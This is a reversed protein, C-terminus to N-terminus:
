VTPVISAGLALEAFFRTAAVARGLVASRREATLSRPDPDPAIAHVNAGIAGIRRALGVIRTALARDAESDRSLDFFEGDLSRIPGAVLLPAKAFSRSFAM